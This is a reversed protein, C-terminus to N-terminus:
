IMEYDLVPDIKMRTIDFKLLIGLFIKIYLELRWYKETETYFDQKSSFFRKWIFWYNQSMKEFKTLILIIFHYWNKQFEWYIEFWVFIKLYERYTCVYLVRDSYSQFLILKVLVYIQHFKRSHLNNKGLFCNCNTITQYLNKIPM